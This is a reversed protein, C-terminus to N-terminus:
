KKKGKVKNHKKLDKLYDRYAFELLKRGAGIGTTQGSVALIKKSLSPKIIVADPQESVVILITPEQKKM